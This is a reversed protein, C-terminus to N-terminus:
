IQLTNFLCCWTLLWSNISGLHGLVPNTYMNVKFSPTSCGDFIIPGGSLFRWHCAWYCHSEADLLCLYASHRSHHAQFLVFLVFWLFAKPTNWFMLSITWQASWLSVQISPFTFNLASTKAIDPHHETSTELICCTQSAYNGCLM